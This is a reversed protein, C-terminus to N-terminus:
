HRQGLWCCGDFIPHSWTAAYHQHACSNCGGDPGAPMPEAASNDNGPTSLGSAAIWPACPGASEGRRRMSTIAASRRRAGGGARVPTAAAPVAGGRATRGERRWGLAFNARPKCAPWRPQRSRHLHARHRCAICCAIVTRHPRCRSVAGDCSRALKGHACPKPYPPVARPQASNVTCNPSDPLQCNPFVIVREGAICQHGIALLNM